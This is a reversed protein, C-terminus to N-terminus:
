DPKTLAASAELLARLEPAAIEGLATLKVHRARKGTGELLGAPDPLETGRPFGFNVAAKLPMVVCVTGRYTEAFGYAMLRAAPDLQEIAEPIVALVLARVRLALTQVPPSYASLFARVEALTKRKRTTVKPM